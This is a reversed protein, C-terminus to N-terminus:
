QMEMLVGFLGAQLESMIESYEDENIEFINVVKGEPKTVEGDLSKIDLTYGFSGLSEGQAVAEINTLDLKTTTDDSVVSGTINLAMAEADDTTAKVAAQLTGNSADYDSEFAVAVKAGEGSMSVAYSEKLSDANEVSDNYAIVMNSNDPATLTLALDLSNDTDLGGNVTFKVTSGEYTVDATIESDVVIGKNIYFNAKVDGVMANTTFDQIAGDLEAIYEDSSSYGAALYNALAAEKVSEKVSECAYVDNITNKLFDTADAGAIEVTYGVCKTTGSALEFEKAEAKSYQMSEKLANFNDMYAKVVADDIEETEIEDFLRLSIEEQNEFDNIDEIYQSFVPSNKISRFLM